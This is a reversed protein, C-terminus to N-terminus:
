LLPYLLLQNLFNPHLDGVNNDNDDEIDLPEKGTVNAAGVSCRPM